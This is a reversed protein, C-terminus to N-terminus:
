PLAEEAQRRAAAALKALRNGTAAFEEPTSRRFPNTARRPPTLGSHASERVPAPAEASAPAGREISIANGMGDRAESIALAPKDGAINTRVERRMATASAKRMLKSLDQDDGYGLSRRAYSATKNVQYATGIVEGKQHDRVNQALVVTAECDPAAPNFHVRVKAGAFQVLDPSAFDFRLSAGEMVQVSGGVTNGSVIWERMCPAFLWAADKPLERLRGKERAEAQQALWREEPVWTGCDKSKVPMRNREQTVREFAALADKLMPFHHRPDTAGRQCSTLMRNAEEEEGRFRGVQGPMDALKQWMLNFLGEIYPKQTPGNATIRQVRLQEMMATVLNSKWVGRELCLRQWIGHQRFLGHFLSVVDEGRYSSQPRATYSWGPVFRSARDIAVLWQFRAVKVGFRESTPCGGMEWPVCVPFNVTADDAELVDGVRVFRNEGTREDNIWMMSGPCRLYDLKARTPNRHHEVIAPAVTIEKALSRPVMRGTREREAFVAAVEPRLQGTRAIYRIAEPVSGSSRTRNTKAMYAGSAAALEKQELIMDEDRKRGCNEHSTFLGALGRAKFSALYRDLNSRKADWGEERMQAVAETGTAGAALLTQYRQVLEQRRYAEKWQRDTKGTPPAEQLVPASLPTAAPAEFSADRGSGASLGSRESAGAAVFSDRACDTDHGVLSQGVDDALVPSLDGPLSASLTSEM